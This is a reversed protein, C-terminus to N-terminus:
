PVLNHKPKRGQPSPQRPEHRESGAIAVRLRASPVITYLRPSCGRKNRKFTLRSGNNTNSNSSANNANAYVLGSNANSNNGGRLVARSKEKESLRDYEEKTLLEFWPYWRYENTTFKPEWGENLASTIIRLKLYAELDEIGGTGKFSGKVIHYQEVLPHRDGLERIADDFTKIRETVEKPKEQDVLTLVGNVWKVDKGEPIEIEVKKM